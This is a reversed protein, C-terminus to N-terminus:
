SNWINMKHRRGRSLSRQLIRQKWSASLPPLFISAKMHFTKLPGPSPVGVTVGAGM